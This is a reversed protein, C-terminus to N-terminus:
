LHPKAQGEPRSSRVEREAELWDELEHGPEGGRALYIEYARHQIEEAMTGHDKSNDQAEREVGTKVNQLKTKMASQLGKELGFTEVTSKALAARLAKLDPITM